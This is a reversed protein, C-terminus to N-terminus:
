AEEEPPDTIEPDFAAAVAAMAEEEDSGSVELDLVTGCSAGLLIVAMISRADALRDNLKLFVASQFAQACKVVRTAPRLHLGEEWPISVKSKRM